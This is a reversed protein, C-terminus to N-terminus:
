SNFWRYNTQTETFVETFIELRHYTVGANEGIAHAIKKIVWDETPLKNGGSAGPRIIDGVNFNTFPLDSTYVAYPLKNSPYDPSFVMLSFRHNTDSNM